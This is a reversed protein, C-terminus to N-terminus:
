LMCVSLFILAYLDFLVILSLLSFVLLSISKVIGAALFTETASDSFSDLNLSRSISTCFSHYMVVTVIETTIPAKPIFLILVSFCRSCIGPFGFTASICFIASAPVAWIKLFVKDIFFFLVIFLQLMTSHIHGSWFCLRRKAWTELHHGLLLNCLVHSWLISM